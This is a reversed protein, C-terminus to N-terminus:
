MLLADIAARDPYAAQSGYQTTALASTAVAFRVAEAPSKGEWLAFALAGAFADGAGTTDVPEVAPAPFHREGEESVLACGAAGMKVLVQDVGQDCLARAAQFAEDLDRVPSGSLREAEGANPTLFEVFEGYRAEYRDAPSPDLVVRLGRARAARLAGWVVDPSIELDLVLVSGPAAAVLVREVHAVAGAEWRDNANEALLITKQGDPRVAIMAVGTAAGPVRRAHQLEVGVAALPRLAEDALPDDGVRALLVTPAGLKRGLYATNAAKGGGVMLFDTVPLTESPGPWREARVQLDVNASGLCFITGRM